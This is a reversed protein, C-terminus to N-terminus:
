RAAFAQSLRTWTQTLDEPIIRTEAITSMFNSDGFWRGLVHMHIHGAMGAGAAAGMNMGINVGDPKYLSQICAEAKRTLAMMEASTEDTIDSLMSVHEYPIVMVHGSTYPYRNLVVFNLEGRHVVLNAEDEASQAIVCFVCGADHKRPEALYRFRWPSWIHDM